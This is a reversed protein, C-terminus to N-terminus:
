AFRAPFLAAHSGASSALISGAVAQVQPIVLLASLLGIVVVAAVATRRIVSYRTMADPSLRLRRVLARDLLKAVVLTLLVVAGAILVHEWFDSM